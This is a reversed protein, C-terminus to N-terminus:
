DIFECIKYFLLFFIMESSMDIIIKMGCQFEKQYDM